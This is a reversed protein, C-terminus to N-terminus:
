PRVDLTGTMAPHFRCFFETAGSKKITLRGESKPPLDIDFSKDRATATHRFMDDNRWVVVDGVHLQTSPAIFKMKDITIRYEAASALSTSAWVLLCSFTLSKALKGM